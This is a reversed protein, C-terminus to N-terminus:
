KQARMAVVPQIAAARLAPLMAGVVAMVLGLLLASVVLDATLDAHMTTTYPFGDGFRDGSDSPVSMGHVELYLAGASGLVTGVLGGVFGIVMAELFFIGVTGFRTLGMARMVGIEGTRELVSMSMTNFIALATVFVFLLEIFLQMGDVMGMMGSWPDREYWGQVALGELGEMSRLREAVPRLVAPDRDAGYVLVELAGGPIDTLWQADELRVFAQKNLVSDAQMVGVVTAKIPSLAGDQTQGLLLVEDGVDLGLDSALRFGLVVEDAAGSLWTGAVLQDPGKLIERFFTETSGVLLGYDDGIEEGAALVVSTTIRPEASVVGPVGRILELVPEVEAINEYMPRFAEREAYDADLVRLHGVQASFLEAMSGFIGNMFAVTVVILAVGIVVTSATLLTRRLNRRANRIALRMWLM